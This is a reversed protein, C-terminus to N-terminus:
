SGPSQGPAASPLKVYEILDMPEYYKAPKQIVWQHGGYGPAELLATAIDECRTGYGEYGSAWVL